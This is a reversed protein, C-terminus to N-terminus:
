WAYKKSTRGTYFIKICNMKHTNQSSM